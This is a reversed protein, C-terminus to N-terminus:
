WPVPPRGEVTVVGNVRETEYYDNQGRFDTIREVWGEDTDFAIVNTVEVGDVYVYLDNLPQGNVRVDFRM